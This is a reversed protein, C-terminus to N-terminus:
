QPCTLHLSNNNQSLLFPVSFFTGGTWSRHAITYKKQCCIAHLFLSAGSFPLIDCLCLSTPRHCSSDKYYVIIGHVTRQNHVIQCTSGRVVNTPHLRALIGQLRIPLHSKDQENQVVVKRIRGSDLESIVEM